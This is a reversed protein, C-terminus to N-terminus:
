DVSLDDVRAAWWTLIDAKLDETLLGDAAVMEHDVQGLDSVGEFGELWDAWEDVLDPFDRALRDSLWVEFGDAHVVFTVDGRRRPATYLPAPVPTTAALLDDDTV